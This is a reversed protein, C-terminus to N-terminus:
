EDHYYYDIFDSNKKLFIAPGFHDSKKRQM